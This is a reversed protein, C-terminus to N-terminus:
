AGDKKEGERQERDHDILIQMQQAFDYELMREEQIKEAEPGTLLEVEVWAQFVPDENMGPVRSTLHLRGMKHPVKVGAEIHAMVADKIDQDNLEIITKM